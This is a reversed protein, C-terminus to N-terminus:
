DPTQPPAGTDRRDSAPRVPLTVQVGILAGSAPFLHGLLWDALKLLPTPLVGPGLRLFPSDGLRVRAESM